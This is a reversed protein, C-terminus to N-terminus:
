KEVKSLEEKYLKGQLAQAQKKGLTKGKTEEEYRRRANILAEKKKLIDM